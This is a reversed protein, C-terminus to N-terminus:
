GQIEQRKDILRLAAHITALYYYFMWSYWVPKDYETKQDLRHHRLGFRNALEFLDAEDKSSLVQKLRPRLYELVDALDKIAHRRDDLSSRYRRFQRIASQVRDGVNESDYSPLEADILSELGQAPLSLIEGDQSIEFGSSYDRLLENVEGRFEIRGTGEDFDTYHWGCDAYDHHIGDTPKSACDFLFEIVDFMDDESYTPLKEPIPWLDEKRLKRVILSDVDSGLKGHVKGQDICEYGFAEQFYGEEEFHLYM